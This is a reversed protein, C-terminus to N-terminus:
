YFLETSISHEKKACKKVALKHSVAMFKCVPFPYLQLISLVIHKFSRM